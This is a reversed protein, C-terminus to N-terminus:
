KKRPLCEKIAVVITDGIEGTKKHSGGLIRICQVRKAGSNDAVKFNTEVQIMLM